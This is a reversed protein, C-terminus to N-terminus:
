IEYNRFKRLWGEEMDTSNPNNNNQLDSGQGRINNGKISLKSSKPTAWHMSHGKRQHWQEFPMNIGSNLWSDYSKRNALDTLIDKAAQIQRFKDLCDPDQNNKDPHLQLARIKYERNIQELQPISYQKLLQDQLNCM